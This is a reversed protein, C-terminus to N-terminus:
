ANGHTCSGRKGIRSEGFTELVNGYALVDDLAVPQVYEPGAPLGRNTVPLPDRNLPFAVIYSRYFHWYSAVEIPHYLLLIFGNSIM